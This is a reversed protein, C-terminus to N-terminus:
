NVLIKGSYTKVGETYIIAMYVGRALRSVPIDTRTTNFNQQLVKRGTADFLMLTNTYFNDTVITFSGNRPVPNPYFVFKNNGGAFYITAETTTITQGNTLTVVARFINTGTHLTNAEYTNAVVRVPSITEITQWGTTSFQQFAISSVNYTTGLSLQLQATNNTTLDALFNNIYCGTGQTTYDFAYSRVGEYGDQLLTTIAIYPSETAHLVISTDATTTFPELYKDGLLYLKYGNVNPAKNWTILVSDACNFGVDTTLQKSFDFTDSYYQDSGITMRAIATTFLAPTTWKLYRDSLNVAFAINKWTNGKDTSYDLVGTTSSAYSSQWRFISNEGSTFHDNAAPSIFYFDNQEDWRYVVYFKQPGRPINYGNVRITLTGNAPNDVTVQEVVNLSDRGKTAAKRLSDASAASNLVWPLIVNQKSQLQLDLDNVLATFANAQAAPDTWTLTVKLNRANAPVTITFTQTQGDAVAGTFYKGSRTDEVARYANVNGYGSFYDPGRRNIDDASNIIFAKTLANEPLSDQHQQAYASQVALVVGSTIAAAGSSGDNGYAALDPKIRGDYAPGKSSLDSITFFSDISGVTLINKAMKFSGSINAFGTINEYPSGALSDKSTGINGASFVHLLAPNDVMSQDYAAADAGYFNEIGVGYSHNQVSINNTAYNQGDPLLIAFDSSTLTCANTVGRGTFFSNGAGGILTAMTTAHSSTTASELGSTKIRNKFDIDSYDFRNEKVSATLNTGNIGPYAAFLLNISNASNDYDNIVTEEKASNLRMDVSQVYENELLTQEIFDISTKVLFLHYKEITRIITARSSNAAILSEFSGPDSASILFNYSGKQLANKKQLLAPSLKWDNNAAEVHEVMLPSNRTLLSATQHDIIFWQKSLQRKFVGAYRKKFAGAYGAKIKVLLYKFSEPQKGNAAMKGSFSLRIANDTSDTTEQSFGKFTCCILLFFLLRKM